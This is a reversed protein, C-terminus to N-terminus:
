DANFLKSDTNRTERGDSSSKSARSGSVRAQFGCGPETTPKRMRTEKLLRHTGSLWSILLDHVWAAKRM